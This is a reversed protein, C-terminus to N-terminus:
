AIKEKENERKRKRNREFTFFFWTEFMLNVLYFIMFTVLFDRVSVNVVVCYVLLVIVSFVIRLIKLALYFLPLRQPAYKRCIDSMYSSFVGLVAFYIPIFPFWSFYHSPLCFHFILVGVVSTLITFLSLTTLYDLKIKSIGM